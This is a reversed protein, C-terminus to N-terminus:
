KIGPKLSLKLRRLRVQRVAALFWRWVGRGFRQPTEPAETLQRDPIHDVEELRVTNAYEGQVYFGPLHVSERHPLATRRENEQIAVLGGFVTPKVGSVLQSM